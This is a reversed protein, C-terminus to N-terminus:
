FKIILNLKLIKKGLEDLLLIKINGNKNNIERIEKEWFM